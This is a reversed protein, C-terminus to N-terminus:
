SNSPNPVPRVLSVAGEIDEFLLRSGFNSALSEAARCLEETIGGQSTGPKAYLESLVLDTSLSAMRYLSNIVAFGSPRRNVEAILLIADQLHIRALLFSRLSFIDKQQRKDKQYNELLSLLIATDQPSAQRVAIIKM